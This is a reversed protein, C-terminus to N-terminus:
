DNLAGSEQIVPEQYLQVVRGNVSQAPRFNDSLTLPGGRAREHLSRFRVLQEETVNMPSQMIFWM